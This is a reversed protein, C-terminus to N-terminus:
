ELIKKQKLETSGCITDIKYQHRPNRKGLHLVRCKDKNFKMRNTEAWHALKDLDGQMKMRDELINAIGGLKTDDASKIIKGQVEEDLDNIFINFLGPGLVSGQPVGNTGDLKLLHWQHASKTVSKAALNPDVPRYNGPEDKEGKKFIPVVNAKRRGDPVEGTKWSKDFIIALPESLEELLMKIVGPHHEDPRDPFVKYYITISLFGTAQREGYHVEMYTELKCVFLQQQQQTKLIHDKTRRMNEVPLCFETQIHVKTLEKVRMLLSKLEEESEAMLTTDDAYRLNNTNRGAIKIGVPSEYLGVKRMIHEAYLNFLCPSLICGQRVGKEIKFWDTTGHGTRVTVEQGVYLNRLLCILHDPVGMEKLVQWLKNHDVCDFAKAYDIFCFYINKQFERAKEMIWRINAIQDRTGRGRRFGAQVEPLEQDVYQQLRAQLIKLMVKRAHSIFAITCYNSCEKANGKKPM